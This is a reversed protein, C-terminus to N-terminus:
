KSPQKDRQQRADTPRPINRGSFDVSVNKSDGARLVVERIEEFVEGDRVIRVRM